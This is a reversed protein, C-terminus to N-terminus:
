SHMRKGYEPGIQSNTQTEQSLAPQGQGDTWCSLLSAFPQIFPFPVLINSAAFSFKAVPFFSGWLAPSPLASRVPLEFGFTELDVLCQHLWIKQSIRISLDIGLAIGNFFCNRIGYVDCPGPSAFRRKWLCNADYATRICAFFCCEPGFLVSHRGDAKRSEIPLSLGNFKGWVGFRLIM